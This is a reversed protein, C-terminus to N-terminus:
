LMIILKKYVYGTSMLLDLLNFDEVRHVPLFEYNDLRKNWEIWMQLALVEHSQSFDINPIIQSIITQFTINRNIFFPYM